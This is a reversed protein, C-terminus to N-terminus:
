QPMVTVDLYLTDHSSVPTVQITNKPGFKYPMTPDSVPTIWHPAPDSGQAIMYYPRAGIGIVQVPVVIKVGFRFGDPMTYGASMWVEGAGPGTAAPNMAMTTSGGMAALTPSPSQAVTEVGSVVTSGTYEDALEFAATTFNTIQITNSQTM